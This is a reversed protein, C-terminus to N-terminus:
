QVTEKLWRLARDLELAWGDSIEETFKDHYLVKIKGWAARADKELKRADPSPFVRISQGRAERYTLMRREMKDLARTVTSPELQVERALQGTSIGPERVLSMLLFAQTTTLGLEAFYPEAAKSLARAFANVSFLFCSSYPSSLQEM